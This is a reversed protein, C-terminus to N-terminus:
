ARPAELFDLAAAFSPAPNEFFPMHGVVPISVVRGGAIMGATREHLADLWGLM